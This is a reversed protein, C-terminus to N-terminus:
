RKALVKQNKQPMRKVFDDIGGIMIAFDFSIIKTILEKYFHQGISFFGEYWLVVEYMEGLKNKLQEAIGKSEVSSGIFIRKKREM